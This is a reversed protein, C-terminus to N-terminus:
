DKENQKCPSTTAYNKWTQCSTALLKQAEKKRPKKSLSLSTHDLSGLCTKSVMALNLKFKTSTIHNKKNVIQLKMVEHKMLSKLIWLEGFANFPTIKLWVFCAQNLSM